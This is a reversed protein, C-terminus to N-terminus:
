ESELWRDILHFNKEMRDRLGSLMRRLHERDEPNETEVLTLIQQATGALTDLLDKPSKRKFDDM